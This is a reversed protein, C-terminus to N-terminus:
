LAGVRLLASCLGVRIRAAFGRRGPPNEIVSFIAAATPGARYRSRCAVEHVRHRSSSTLDHAAQPCCLGRVVGDDLERRPRFVVIPRAIGPKRTLRM